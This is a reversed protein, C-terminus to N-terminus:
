ELLGNGKHAINMNAYDTLASEHISLYYGTDTKLTLPTQVTDVESLPREEYLHETRNLIYADISWTLPDGSLRFESREDLIVFDQLNAQEPWEYRFGLGDNYIRFVIFMTQESTNEVELRLENYNNRIDKVEGWPQTCVENLDSVRADRVKLNDYFDGEKMFVGLRSPRIVPANDKNLEYFIKGKDRNVTLSLGRYPSAIMVGDRFIIQGKELPEDEQDMSALNAETQSLKSHGLLKSVSYLDVGASRGLDAFTHRSMHFTVNKQIDALKALKKLEKNVNVNKSSVEKDFDIDSKHARQIIPFLYIDEPISEIDTHHVSLLTKLEDSM